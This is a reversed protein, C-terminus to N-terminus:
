YTFPPYKQSGPMNSEILSRMRFAITKMLRDSDIKYNKALELLFYQEEFWRHRMYESWSIKDKYEYKSEEDKHDLWLEELITSAILEVFCDKKWYSFCSGSCHVCEFRNSM